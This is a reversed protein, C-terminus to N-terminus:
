QSSDLADEDQAVRLSALSSQARRLESVARAISGEPAPPAEQIQSQLFALQAKKLELCAHRYSADGGLTSRKVRSVRRACM